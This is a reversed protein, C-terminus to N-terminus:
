PLRSPLTKKGYTKNQTKRYVPLVRTIMKEFRTLPEDIPLLPLLAYTLLTFTGSVIILPPLGIIEFLKAGVTQGGMSGFNLVAMFAAFITGEANKPCFRAALGLLTLLMVMNFAGFIIRALIAIGQAAIPRAAVYPIFYLLDLFLGAAGIAIMYVFIKRFAIRKSYRWFLIAGILGTGSSIGDLYGLFIKSFKLTDVSYYFFPMGYSPSFNWLFLFLAVIWLANNRIAERLATRTEQRQEQPKDRRAERLFLLVACLVLLPFITSILFITQYRLYVLAYGSGVSVFMIAISISAWQISQFKDILGLPKGTEVMLGDCLVDTFAYATASITLLILITTYDYQCTLGLTFWVAAAILTTMFLYSKRRYGFFPFSDSIIGFLPKIGWAISTVVGFYAASAASLKLVEKLLFNIPLSSFGEMGQVFYVLGFILAYAGLRRPLMATAETKMEM